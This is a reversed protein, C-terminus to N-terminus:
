PADFANSQLSLRREVVTRCRARRVTAPEAALSEAPVPLRPPGTWCCGGVLRARVEAWRAVPAAFGTATSPHRITRGCPSGANSAPPAGRGALREPSSPPARSGAGLHRPQPGALDM